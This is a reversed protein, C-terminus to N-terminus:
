VYNKLVELHHTDPDALQDALKAIVEGHCAPGDDELRQCWCGLTQGSLNAVAERFESDNLLAWGFEGEFRRVAEERGHEEVIYPNGLWGRNGIETQTFSRGGPGRGIYVDYDDHKIHGIRTCELSTDNPRDIDDQRM